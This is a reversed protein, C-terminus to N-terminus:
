GARLNAISNVLDLSLFFQINPIFRLFFGGPFTDQRSKFM